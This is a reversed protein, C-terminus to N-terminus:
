PLSANGPGNKAVFVQAIHPLINKLAREGFFFTLVLSNVVLLLSEQQSSWDMGTVFYVYDLFATFYAFLPRFAGRLFIVVAGLIPLATLDKATGELDITRENFMRERELDHQEIMTQFEHENEAVLTQFAAKLQEAQDKDRIVKDILGLGKEAFGGSLFNLIKQGIAM